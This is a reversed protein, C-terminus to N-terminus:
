MKCLTGRLIENFNLTHFDRGFAEELLGGLLRIYTYIYIHIYPLYTM